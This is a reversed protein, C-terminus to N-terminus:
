MELSDWEFDTMGLLYSRGVEAAGFAQTMVVDYSAIDSRSTGDFMQKLLLAVDCDRFIVNLPVPPARTSAISYTYRPPREFREPHDSVFRGLGTAVNRGFQVHNVEEEDEHALLVFAKHDKESTPSVKKKGDPQSDDRLPLIFEAGGLYSQIFTMAEAQTRLNELYYLQPGVYGSKRSDNPHNCTNIGIGTFQSM